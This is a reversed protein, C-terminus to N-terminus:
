HVLVYSDPRVSPNGGNSYVFLGSYASGNEGSKINVAWFVAGADENKEGVQAQLNDCFAAEAKTEKCKAKAYTLAVSKIQEDSVPKYLTTGVFYVIVSLILLAAIVATIIIPTSSKKTRKPM